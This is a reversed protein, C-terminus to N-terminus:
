SLNKAIIDAVRGMLVRSTRKSKESKAFTNKLQTGTL